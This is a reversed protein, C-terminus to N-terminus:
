VLKYVVLRFIKAYAEHRDKTDLDNKLEIIPKKGIWNYNMIDDLM